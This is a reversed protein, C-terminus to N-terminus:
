NRILFFNNNKLEHFLFKSTSFLIQPIHIIRFMRRTRIDIDSMNSYGNFTEIYFAWVKGSDLRNFSYLATAITRVYCFQPAYVLAYKLIGLLIIRYILDMRALYGRASTRQLLEPKSLAHLIYETLCMTCVPLSFWYLM